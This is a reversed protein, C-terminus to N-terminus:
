ARPHPSDTTSGTPSPPPPLPLPSIHSLTCNVLESNAGCNAKNTQHDKGSWILILASVCACVCVCVQRGDVWLADLTLDLLSLPLSQLRNGVIDLVRLEKLQAIEEPIEM